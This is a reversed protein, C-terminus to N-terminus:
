NVTELFSKLGPAKVNVALSLGYISAAAQVSTTDILQLVKLLLSSPLPSDEITESSSRKLTSAHSDLNALQRIWGQSDSPLEAYSNFSLDLSVQKLLYAVLVSQLSSSGEVDVFQEVLNKLVKARLNFTMAGFISEREEPRLSDLRKEAKLNALLYQPTKSEFLSNLISRLEQLKPDPLENFSIALQVQDATASYTFEIQEIVSALDSFALSAVSTLKTVAACLKTKLVEASEETAQFSLLIVFDALGVSAGLQLGLREVELEATSSLKLNIAFGAEGVEGINLSLSAENYLDVAQESELVTRLQQNLAQFAPILSSEFSVLNRWIQSRGVRGCKWWTTFESLSINQDSNADLEIFARELEAETATEGMDAYAQKFEEYDIFGSLDRDFKDFVQKIWTLLEAEVQFIVDLSFSGIDPVASRFGLSVALPSTELGQPAILVKHIVYSMDRVFDEIEILEQESDVKAVLLDVPKPLTSETKPLAGFVALERGQFNLQTYSKPTLSVEFLQFSLESLKAQDSTLLVVRFLVSEEM